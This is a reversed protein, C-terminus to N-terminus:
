EQHHTFSAPAGDHDSSVFLVTLPPVEIHEGPSATFPEDSGVRCVVGPADVICEGGHRGTFWVSVNEGSDLRVRIHQNLPPVTIRM